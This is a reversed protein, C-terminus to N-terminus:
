GVVDLWAGQEVFVHRQDMLAAEPDETDVGYEKSVWVGSGVAGRLPNMSSTALGSGGGGCNLRVFAGFNRLFASLLGMIAVPLMVWWVGHCPAPAGGGLSRGSFSLATSLADMASVGPCIFVDPLEGFDSRFSQFFVQPAPFM